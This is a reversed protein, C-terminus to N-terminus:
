ALRLGNRVAEAYFSGSQSARREHSAPTEILLEFPVSSGRWRIPRWAKLIDMLERVASQKLDKV